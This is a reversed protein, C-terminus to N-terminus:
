FRVNLDGTNLKEQEEVSGKNDLGEGRRHVEPKPELPLPSDDYCM